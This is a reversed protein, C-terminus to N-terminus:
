CNVIRGLSDVIREAAKGDWLQPVRSEKWQGQLASEFLTKLRDTNTGIVENSGVQATIPRETSERMTICPVKLATTEEQLGGSDTIVCVADKWLNLFEMYGLPETLLVGSLLFDCEDITSVLESLGFEEIRKRTRPHCPFIVPIDQALQKLASLIKRLTHPDDVNSPRHLTMAAYRNGAGEKIRGSTPLTADEIRELQYFLNDIMVHGVFHIREKPQGERLLNDVGQRETVFFLDSIADTVIRNIEEPMARDGSRLGAEVHALDVHLKKAVMGCAATSNVDGVVLVLDPNEEICVKEFRTMIAATQEAHTGSGVELNYDPAPIGLEDFFTQSM